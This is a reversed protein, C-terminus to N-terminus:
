QEEVVLVPVDPDMHLPLMTDEPSEMMMDMIIKEMNRGARSKKGELSGASELMNSLKYGAKLEM